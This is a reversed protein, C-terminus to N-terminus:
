EGFTTAKGRATRTAMGRLIRGTGRRPTGIAGRKHMMRVLSVAQSRMLSFKYNGSSLHNITSRLERLMPILARETVKVEAADCRERKRRTAICSRGTAARQQAPSRDPAAPSPLDRTM